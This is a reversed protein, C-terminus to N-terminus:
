QYYVFKHAIPIYSREACIHITYATWLYKAQLLFILWNIIIFGVSAPTRKTWGCIIIIRAAIQKNKAAHLIHPKYLVVDGLGCRLVSMPWYILSYINLHKRHVRADDEVRYRMYISMSEFLYACINLIISQSKNSISVSYLNYHM